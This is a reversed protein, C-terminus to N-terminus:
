VKEKLQNRYNNAIEDAVVNWENNEPYHGKKWKVQVCGRKTVKWIMKWLDGNMATTFNQRSWAHMWTRVGDVLYRSDSVVRICDRDGVWLNDFVWELSMILAMMEMRNSTTGLAYNGGRYVEAGDVLVVYGYGGHGSTPKNKQNNASGDTYITINMM